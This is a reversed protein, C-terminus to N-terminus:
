KSKPKLYLWRVSQNNMYRACVSKVLDPTLNDYLGAFNETYSESLRHFEAHAIVRARGRNTSASLALRSKLYDRTRDLEKKALSHKALGETLATVREVVPKADSLNQSLRLAIVWVQDHGLETQRNTTSLPFLKVSTVSNTGSQLRRALISTQPRGALTQLALNFALFDPSSRTPGRLGILLLPRSHSPTDIVRSKSVQSPPDPKKSKGYIARPRGRGFWGSWAPRLGQDLQETDVDGVIVLHGNKPQFIESGRLKQSVSPTEQHGFFKAMLGLEKRESQSLLDVEQSLEQLKSASSTLLEVLEEKPAWHHFFVGGPLVEFELGIEPRDNLNHALQEAMQASLPPSIRFFGSIAVTPWSELLQTSIRLKNPLTQSQLPAQPTRNSRVHYDFLQGLTPSKPQFELRALPSQSASLLSKAEAVVQRFETDLVPGVPKHGWLHLQSLMEARAQSSEHLELWDRRIRSALEESQQPTLDALLTPLSLSTPSLDLRFLSKDERFLRARQDAQLSMELLAKAVQLSRPDQLEMEFFLSTQERGSTPEILTRKPLPETQPAAKRPEARAPLLPRLTKSLHQRIERASHPGVVTIVIDEDLKLNKLLLQLDVGRIQKVSEATGAQQATYGLKELIRYRAQDQPKLTTTIEKQIAHKELKWGEPDRPVGSLRALQLELSNLGQEAPVIESIFLTTPTVWAQSEHGFSESRLLLDGPTGGPKTRFLLHELLHATGAKPNVKKAESHRIALCTATATADPVHQVLITPYSGRESSHSPRLHVQGGPLEQATCVLSLLLTLFAM